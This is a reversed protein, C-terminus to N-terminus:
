PVNSVQVQQFLNVAGAGAADAIRLWISVVGQRQNIVNQDYVITCGTVGRTLLAPYVPLRHRNLLRSQTVRMDLDFHRRRHRMCLLGARQDRPFPTRSIRSQFYELQLQDCQCRWHRGGRIHDPKQQRWDSRRKRLRRCERVRFRSQLSRYLRQRARRISTLLREWHRSARTPSALSSYTKKLSATEVSTRCHSATWPASPNSDAARYRGGTRTQLFELYYVAGVLTMRISNPLANQLDRKLLAFATNAADTISARHQADQYVQIPVRIFVSVSAALIGTIAIVTIMEVLTFGSTASKFRPHM